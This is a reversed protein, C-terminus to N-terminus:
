SLLRDLDRMGAALEFGPSPEPSKMLSALRQYVDDPMDPVSKLVIEREAFSGNCHLVIDCGAALSATAREELSGSLAKMTIDDSLLVGKFGIRQRIIREILQSSTTAPAHPDIGAYTIHATMAVPMDNLAVFPKFDSEWLEDESADVHPLAMHSDVHARGHGPIHKIVPTVGGDMLGECTARGLAAIIEPDGGYARDGIIDHAGEYSMDLLPLCDVTVGVDLLEAAILRANLRAASVAKGLDDKAMNSFRGQSPAMRWHPPKLRAVRGGEQDILVPADRGVADRMEATLARVQDPSHCNRQFLIFGFPQLEAFMAQEEASLRDAACDVIVPRVM